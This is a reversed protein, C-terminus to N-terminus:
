PKKIGIVMQRKYQYNGNGSNANTLGFWGNHQGGWGWNMHFFLYMNGCLSSEQYGDAVWCHGGSYSHLIWGTQTTYGTM